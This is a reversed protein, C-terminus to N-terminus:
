ESIISEENEEDTISDKMSGLEYCWTLTLLILTPFVWLADKLIRDYSKTLIDHLLWLYPALYVITFVFLRICLKIKRM